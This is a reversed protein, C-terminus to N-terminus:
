AQLDERQEKTSRAGIKCSLEKAIAAGGGNAMQSM